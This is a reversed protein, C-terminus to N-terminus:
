EMVTPECFQRRRKLKSCMDKADAASKFPGAKLRFYTGKRGLNVRSIKHELDGILNKHAGSIQTWGKNANQETRYSALHIAPSPGSSSQKMRTPAPSSSPPPPAMKPQKPQMVLEISQREKAYEDSGIYGSNRLQELRRVSDAAEMLGSPPAGPNAVVVPASPMLADLIMNREAAHQTVSIARMELARGIARLRGTIQETSPVPRDLGASPPPASLPLLAGINARRRADFEQQTILGQDRLARITAFRSVVNTDGGAFKGVAPMDPLAAGPAPVASMPAAIPSPRGLMPSTVPAAAVKAMPEGSPASMASSVNGSDLLSLNVSAIQSAPRTTINNWVVFQVSEDPRIALVAEYMERAKTLQGTNQYLIGAGLLAHVDKPNRRLARQFHGEATVYNGKALEAIGLEAEDNNQFPSSAWFSNQFLDGQFLGCAGLGIAILVVFAIRKLQGTM